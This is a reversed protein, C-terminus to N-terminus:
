HATESSGPAEFDGASGGAAIAILEADSLDTVSRSVNANITQAPKGYGRDLIANAAAVRAAPPAEKDMMVTALTEIADKARSQCLERVDAPISRPRGGPNGSQGKVFPM